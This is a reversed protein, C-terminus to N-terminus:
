DFVYQLNIYKYFRTERNSNYVNILKICLSHIRFDVSNINILDFERVFFFHLVELLFDDCNMEIANDNVLNM